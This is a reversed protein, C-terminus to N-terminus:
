VINIIEQDSQLSEPFKNRRACLKYWCCEIVVLTQKVRVILLLFYNEETSLFFWPSNTLINKLMKLIRYTPLMLTM